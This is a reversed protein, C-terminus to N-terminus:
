DLAWEVAGFVHARYRADEWLEAGHGLATYLSRGAGVRTWWAIPHPDAGASGDFEDYEREDLTALVRARKGPEPDFNYLEDTVPWRRPLGATAPHGRELVTVTARQLQADGPPHNRFRAGGLLEGYFPWDREANAAAHIAVVSGGAKVWREFAARQGGDLVRGNVQLLVVVAVGELDELRAADETLEADFRDRLAARGADIAEAHRFATTRSFVLVDARPPEAGGCGALAALLLALAAIRV